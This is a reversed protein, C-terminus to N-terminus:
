AAVDLLEAACGLRMLVDHAAAEDFHDPWGIVALACGCDCVLTDLEELTQAGGRAQDACSEDSCILRAVYVCFLMVRVASVGIRQGRLCPLRPLPPLPRERREHSARPARGASAARLPCNSGSRCAPDEPPQAEYQRSRRHQVESSLVHLTKAARGLEVIASGLPTPRGAGQLVRLLESARVTGDVAPFGEGCLEIFKRSLRM